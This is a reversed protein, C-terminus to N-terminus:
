RQARSAPQQRIVLELEAITAFATAAWTFDAARKLAATRRKQKESESLDLTIMLEQALDDADKPEYYNAFDRFFEPMPAQRTSVSLCGHAMAELVVNPCAEARSSMVFAACNYFCWSMERSNLQGTWVVDEAVGAQRALRQMKEKYPATGPNVEGAIVLISRRGKKKLIRLAKIIDELGRAPRVSGATFIFDAPESLQLNHPKAVNEPGPLPGVGHYVVGIRTSAIKWEKTLFDRVHESVAMVRTARKCAKRATYARAINKMGERLSNGNFPVTLPEMNRIAVMVPISGCNLWRGTPILIVDPALRRLHEKLWAFGTRADKLPWAHLSIQGLQIANRVEPPVFVDLRSVRPDAQLLPVLQELYKRYGGSLGGQTLNVIAIQM